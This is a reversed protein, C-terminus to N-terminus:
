ELEEIAVDVAAVQLGTATRLAEAVGAQVSAALEPLVVGFEATLELSVHAGGDRVTVDLGRRPRRV